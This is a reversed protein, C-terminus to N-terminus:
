APLTPKTLEDLNENIAQLPVLAAEPAPYKRTVYPFELYAADRELGEHWRMWAERYEARSPSIGRVRDVGHEPHNTLSGEADLCIMSILDQVVFKDKFIKTARAILESDGGFRVCDWHGLNERFEQLDFMCSISAIRAVGDHSTSGIRSFRDVYRDQRLRLMRAISVKIDRDGLMLKLQREIRQPHAWDDADHGTLFEGSAFKLAMNKSVYPGVNVKNKVAIVRDDCREFERILEWTNDSSCDDVIILEINKWTQSLISSVSHKITKEANFAPMIISVKPNEDLCYSSPVESTIRQFESAVDEGRSLLAIPLVGQDELYKNIHFLWQKDDSVVKNALLVQYVGNDRETKYTEFFKIAEDLGHNEMVRMAQFALSTSNPKPWKESGRNVVSVVTSKVAAGEAGTRVHLDRGAAAQNAKRYDVVGKLSYIWAFPLRLPLLRGSGLGKMFAAGVSYMLSSRLDANRKREKKLLSNLHKGELQLKSILEKNNKIEKNLSERELAGMKEQKSLLQEAQEVRKGVADLGCGVAELRNGVSDLGGGVAELRNGVTDLREQQGVLIQYLKRSIFSHNGGVPLKRNGEVLKSENYNSQLEVLSKDLDGQAGIGEWFAAFDDSFNEIAIKFVKSKNKLFHHINANVTAVYDLCDDMGQSDRMLIGATYATVISMDKDWRKNYSEATAFDNRTLHVYIAEDGFAADLAGLMWSLRNDIEIHNEPFSLRHHAHLGTRSEHGCSFNEIHQCAKSLTVSGCRGACLVFVNM